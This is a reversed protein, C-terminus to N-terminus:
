NDIAEFLQAVKDLDKDGPSREVGSSLDIGNPQLRSLADKINDPTLGGALLWPIAPKFQALDQWDITHGIGGLMQPHYADLM